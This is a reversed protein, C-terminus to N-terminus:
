PRQEGAPTEAGPAAQEPRPPPPRSGVEVHPHRFLAQRAVRVLERVHRQEPREDSRGAPLLAGALSAAGAVGSVVMGVVHVVYAEPDVEDHIQGHRQGTRIYDAVVRVWPAVHRALQRRMQAPRDLIERLLLRARDPDEAFFGTMEHMVAEFRREGSAAAMLLRPLVENWRELVEGLVAKLLAEKTSFHYLLSPKRIGVADAIQRLSTGDFGRAAFLKTAARLIESRADM